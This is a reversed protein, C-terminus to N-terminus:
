VLCTSLLFVAAWILCATLILPWARRRRPPMLVLTLGSPTRMRMPSALRPLAPSHLTITPRPTVRPAIPRLPSYIRNSM